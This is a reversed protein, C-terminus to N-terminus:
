SSCGCTTARAAAGPTKEWSDGADIFEALTPYDVVLQNATAFTEDVTRYCEYGPIGNVQGPLRFRPACFEATRKSDIEVRVGLGWLRALDKEEVGVVFYGEKARVEWPETWQAVAAIVAPDASHVRVVTTRCDTSVTTEAAALPLVLLMSLFLSAVVLTRSM